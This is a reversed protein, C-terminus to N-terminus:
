DPGAIADRRPGFLRRDTTASLREESPEIPERNRSAAGGSSRAGTDTFNCGAEQVLHARARSTPDSDYKQHVTKDLTDLDGDLKFLSDLETM